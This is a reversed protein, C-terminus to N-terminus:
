ALLTRTWVDLVTAAYEAPTRGGSTVLQYYEPSNTTWILHAVQEDTLDERLEGTSRLDAALRLMNDARRQNLAEWVRRCEPDGVAAVRLAEALPVTTPFVRGLADAYTALKARAGVAARVAAVYERQEAPVPEDTSGLEMDHVAILLQPKRGVSAYLTDVSVKARRAVEAVTTDAYGKRVFLDRAARLVARRTRAAQQERRPSRYTRTSGGSSPGNVPPAVRGVTVTNM